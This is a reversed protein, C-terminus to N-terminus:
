LCVFVCLFVRVFVCVCACECMRGTGRSDLWIIDNMQKGREVVARKGPPYALTGLLERQCAQSSTRSCMGIPSVGVPRGSQM